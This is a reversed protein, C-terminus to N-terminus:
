SILCTSQHPCNKDMGCSRPRDLVYWAVEAYSGQVWITPQGRGQISLGDAGQAPNGAIASALGGNDFAVPGGGAVGCGSGFVSAAGPARWPSTRFVDKVGGDIEVEVSRAFQPLTPEIEIERNNSFWHCEGRTCDGGKDLCGGNWPPPFTMHGHGEVLIM